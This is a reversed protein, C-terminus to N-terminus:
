NLNFIDLERFNINGYSLLFLWYNMTLYIYQETSNKFSKILQKFVKIDFQQANIRVTWFQM